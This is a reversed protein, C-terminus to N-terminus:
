GWIWWSYIGAYVAMISLIALYSRRAYNIIFLHGLQFATCCNLLPIYDCIHRYDAICLISVSLSLISIFGNLARTQANYGYIKLMNFLGASICTFITIGVTTILKLSHEHLLYISLLSPQQHFIQNIESIGFGISIWVPTILGLIFAIITRTNSIHMQICGLLFIPIFYLHANQIFSGLSLLLGITFIAFSSYHINGYNGLLIYTTLIIVLCLITGYNLQYSIFPSSCQIIIFFSAFLISLSRLLNYRKNIIVMLLAVSISIASSVSLSLLSPSSYIESPISFAIGSKIFAVYNAMIFIAVVVFGCM